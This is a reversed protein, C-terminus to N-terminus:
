ATAAQARWPISYCRRRARQAESRSLQRRKRPRRVRECDVSLMRAAPPTTRAEMSTPARTWDALASDGTVISHDHGDPANGRFRRSAETADVGDLAPSISATEPARAGGRSSSVQEEIGINLQRGDRRRHLRGIRCATAAARSKLSFRSPRQTTPARPPNDKVAELQSERSQDSPGASKRRHHRENGDLVDQRSKISPM